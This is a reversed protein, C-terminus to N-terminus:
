KLSTLALTKYHNPTCTHISERFAFRLKHSELSSNKHFFCSPYGQQADQHQGEAQKRAAATGAVALPNDSDAVVLGGGVGGMNTQRGESLKDIVVFLQAVLHMCQLGAQYKLKSMLSPKM